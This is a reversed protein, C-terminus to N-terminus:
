GVDEGALKKLLKAYTILNYLVEALRGEKRILKKLVWPTQSLGKLAEIEASLM